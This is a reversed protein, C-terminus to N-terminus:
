LTPAYFQASEAAYPLPLGSPRCSQITLSAWPMPCFKSADFLFFQICFQHNIFKCTAASNIQLEVASNIPNVVPTLCRTYSLKLYTMLIIECERVTGRIPVTRIIWTKQMFVSKEATKSTQNPSSIRVTTCYQKRYEAYGGKCLNQPISCFLVSHLFYRKLGSDIATAGLYIIANGMSM